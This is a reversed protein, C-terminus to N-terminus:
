GNGTGEVGAKRNTWLIVPLGVITPPLWAVASEAGPSGALNKWQVILVGTWLGVYSAGMGTLHFHIWGQWRLKAALYGLLASGYAFIAVYLFWQRPGLRAVGGDRGNRM